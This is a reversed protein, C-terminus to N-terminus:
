LYSKLISAGMTYKPDVMNGLRVRGCQTLLMYADLEDFGYDAAMWRILERYAIRAADEMPRASGITMLVTRTELRPWEITWEKILDIQVTTVTPHELAVGCLEGDGQIAHCDGIYLLAGHANVPLYIVAGPASTPCIWTAATITRSCRPSRRSRRRPASPESSPNSIAAHHKDSWNVGGEM